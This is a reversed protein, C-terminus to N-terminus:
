FEGTFGFFVYKFVREQLSGGLVSFWFRKLRGKCSFRAGRKFSGWYFRFFFFFNFFGDRALFRRFRFGSGSSGGRARVTVSGFRVPAVRNLFTLTLRSLLLESVSESTYTYTQPSGIQRSM